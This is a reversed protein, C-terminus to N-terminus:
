IGAKATSTVSASVEAKRYALRERASDGRRGVPTPATAAALGYPPMNAYVVEYSGAPVRYTEHWLGVADNEAAQNFRKWAPRHEDGPDHAFRMLHDLSRWYQLFTVNRLGVTQRYGLLGKSPDRALSRLMPGMERAMPVWRHLKWFKNLRLGIMFVVIEGDVDATFREPILDTRAM